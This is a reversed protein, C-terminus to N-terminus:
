SWSPCHSQSQVTLAGWKRQFAFRMDAEISIVVIREPLLILIGCRCVPNHSINCLYSNGSQYLFLFVCAGVYMYVMPSREGKMSITKFLPFLGDSQCLKSFNHVKVRFPFCFSFQMGQWSDSVFQSASISFFFPKIEFALTGFDSSNIFRCTSDCFNQIVHPCEILLSFCNHWPTRFLGHNKM